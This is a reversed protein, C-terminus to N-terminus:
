KDLRWLVLSFLGAMTYTIKPYDPWNHWEGWVVILGFIIVDILYVKNKMNKKLGGFGYNLKNCLEWCLAFMIINIRWVHGTNVRIQCM